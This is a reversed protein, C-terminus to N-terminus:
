ISPISAVNSSVLANIKSYSVLLLYAMFFVIIPPINAIHPVKPVEDTKFVTASLRTDPQLVGGPLNIVVTIIYSKIIGRIKNETM